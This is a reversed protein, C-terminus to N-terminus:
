ENSSWIKEVLLGAEPDSFVRNFEKEIVLFVEVVEPDFHTGTSSKIIEVCKEHQYEPKYVRKSRLADYVDAIAMIRCSLPIEEGKLGLPYGSGDWKEHHSHAIAVGMELFQNDPYQKKVEGLTKAGITTHTQIIKFEEPSLKGPKLLISDPVAVKGVDHLPSVKYLNTIYSQNLYSSYKPNNALESALLRCYDAVRQIHAGTDDDRAESLKVLSYITALQAEYVETQTKLIKDLSYRYNDVFYGTLSAVTIYILIRSIWNIPQQLINMQIDLPMLPGVLIGSFMALLTSHKRGMTAASLVIPIYMFNAFVHTTGGTLFVVVAIIVSMLYAIGLTFVNSFRMAKEKITIIREM